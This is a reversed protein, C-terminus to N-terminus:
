SVPPVLLFGLWFFVKKLERGKIRERKKPGNEKGKTERAEGNKAPIIIPGKNGPIGLYLTAFFPSPQLLPILLSLFPFPPSLPGRYLIAPGELM